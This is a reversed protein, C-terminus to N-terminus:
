TRVQTDLRTIDRLFQSVLTKIQQIDQPAIDDAPVIAGIETSLERRAADFAQFRDPRESISSRYQALELRQAADLLACLRARITISQRLTDYYEFQKQGSTLIQGVLVPVLLCITGVIALISAVMFSPGGGNTRYLTRIGDLRRM